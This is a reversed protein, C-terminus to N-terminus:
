LDDPALVGRDVALVTLGPEDSPFSVYADNLASATWSGPTRGQTCLRAHVQGHRDRVLLLRGPMVQRRTSWAIETDKPYRPSLAEDPLRASFSPPVQTSQLISEWTMVPLTHSVLYQSLEQAVVVTAGKTSHQDNAWHKPNEDDVSDLTGRSLELAHEAARAAKEGFSRSGALMGSWYSIGGKARDSMYRAREKDPIQRRQLVLKLNSLRILKEDSM